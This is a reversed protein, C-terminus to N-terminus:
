KSFQVHFLYVTVHRGQYFTTIPQHHKRYIDLWHQFHKLVTKEQQYVPAEISYIGQAKGIEFVQKQVFVFVYPAIQRDVGTQGYATLTPKTPDFLEVFQKMGMFNGNGIVLDYGLPDASVVMYEKYHYAENIRLYAEVDENWQMTYPLVPRLQHFLAFYLVTLALVTSEFVWLNRIGVLLLSITVQITFGIVFAETYAWVDISRTAIVYSHSLVGGFDYLIFSIWGILAVSMWTVRAEKGQRIFLSLIMLLIICIVTLRDFLSLVPYTINPVNATIFSSAGQNITAHVLWNALLLPALIVIVSILASGMSWLIPRMKGTFYFLVFSLLVAACDLGEQLYAVPHIFGAACMGSLAVLLDSRRNESLYRHLFYVTPFVFVSGFEQSETAALRAWDGFLLKQGLLGYLIVASAAGFHRGTWRYIIWYLGFLLLLVDLAGTYKVIYLTNIFSLKMLLDMFIYFGQPYIGDHFFFRQNIYQVWALDVYSDSMPPAAVSVASYGHVYLSLCFILAVVMFFIVKQRQIGQFQTIINKKRTNNSLLHKILNPTEAWDYVFVARLAHSKQISKIFLRNKLVSWFITVFVLGIVEYLKSLILVYSVAISFVAMRLFNAYLRDSWNGDYAVFLYRPVWLFIVGFALLYHFLHYGQNAFSSYM